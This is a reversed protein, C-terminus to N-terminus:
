SERAGERRDTAREGRFRARRDGGPLLDPLAPVHGIPGPNHTTDPRFEDLGSEEHKIPATKKRAM